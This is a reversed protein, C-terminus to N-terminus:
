NTPVGQRARARYRHSIAGLGYNIIYMYINLDDGARSGDLCVLIANEGAPTTNEEQTDTRPAFRHCPTM